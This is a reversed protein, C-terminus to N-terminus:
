FPRLLAKYPDPGILPIYNSCRIRQLRQQTFYRHARIKEACGLNRNLTLRSREILGYVSSLVRALDDLKRTTALWDYIMYKTIECLFTAFPPVTTAGPKKM